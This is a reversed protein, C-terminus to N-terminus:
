RALKRQLEARRFVRRVLDAWVVPAAELCVPCSATTPLCFRRATHPEREISYTALCTLHFVHTGCGAPCLSYSLPRAVDISDHCLGCSLTAEAVVEDVERAAETQSARHLALWPQAEHPAKELADWTLGLTEADRAPPSREDWANDKETRGKRQQLSATAAEPLPPVAEATATRLLPTHTGLVGRFDCRVPPYGRPLARRTVRSTRWKPSPATRELFRWVGYAYETFFAVRLGWHCFPESSLLARLVLFKHEPVSTSRLKVRREGKRSTRYAKRGAPFLPEASRGAYVARQQGHVVRLHRSLHPTQWSWEFQTLCGYTGSTCGAEFPFWLRDHGHGLPACLAHLVGWVERAWQAAAPAACSGADLRRLDPEAEIALTPLLM